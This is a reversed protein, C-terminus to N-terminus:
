NLCGEPKSSTTWPEIVHGVVNLVSQLSELDRERSTNSPHGLIVLINEFGFCVYQSPFTYFTGTYPTRPM